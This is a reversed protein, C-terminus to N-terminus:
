CAAAFKQCLTAAMSARSPSALRFHVAIFDVHSHKGL